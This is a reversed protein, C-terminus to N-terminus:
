AEKSYIYIGLQLEQQIADYLNSMGPSKISPIRELLGKIYTYEANTNLYDSIKGDAGITMGDFEIKDSLANIEDTPAEYLELFPFERNTIYQAGTKSLSYPLAQINQLSMRHLDKSYDVQEARLRESNQWDMAGGIASIGANVVGMGVGLGIGAGGSILGGTMGKSFGGFGAQVINSAIAFKQEQRQVDQTTELNQIQRNFIAEYNKNQLQYSSWQDTVVPFSFDGGCILGRADGFDSGYMGKFVPAIHIYPNYPKYDVDVRFADVGLNMQASFDFAGQFNPSSLRWLQSENAVKASLASEKLALEDLPLSYGTGFFHVTGRDRGWDSVTFSRKNSSCWYIPYIKNYTHGDDSSQELYSIRNTSYTGVNYSVKSGYYITPVILTPDPCYPLLQIDYINGGSGVVMGKIMMNAAITALETSATFYSGYNAKGPYFCTNVNDYPIIFMDYPVDKLHTRTSAKQPLIIRYRGHNIEKFNLTVKSISSVQGIISANNSTNLIVDYGSQKYNKDFYDTMGSTSLNLEKLSVKQKTTSITFQYNKKEDEFYVTLPNSETNDKIQNFRSEYLIQPDVTVGNAKLMFDFFYSTYQNKSALDLNAFVRKTYELSILPITKDVYPGFPVNFFYRGQGYVETMSGIPNVAHTVYTRYNQQLSRNMMASGNNYEPVNLGWTITPNELYYINDVNDLGLFNNLFDSRSSFIRASPEPDEDKFSYEQTLTEIATSGSEGGITYDGYTTYGVIWRMQTEDKIPYEAKKIQDLRLGEKNWIYPKNIDDIWGKEIYAPSQEVSEFNDGIVDRRLTFRYQHANMGTTRSESLIWWRSLIEGTEDDPDTIVLYAAEPIPDNLIISTGLEDGPIFNQNTFTQADQDKDSILNANLLAQLFEALHEKHPYQRRSGYSYGRVITINRLGNAM